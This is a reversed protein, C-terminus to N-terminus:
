CHVEEPINSWLPQARIKKGPRESRNSIKRKGISLPYENRVLSCSDCASHQMAGHYLNGFPTDLGQQNVFWRMTQPFASIKQPIRKASKAYLSTPEDLDRVTFEIRKRYQACSSCLDYRGHYHGLTRSHTMFSLSFPHVRKYLGILVEGPLRCRIMGSCHLRGGPLSKPISDLEFYFAAILLGHITKECNGQLKSDLHVSERLEDMRSINDIGPENTPLLTNLRKYTNRNEEQLNNM